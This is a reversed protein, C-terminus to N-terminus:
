GGTDCGARRGMWLHRNRAVFNYGTAAVWKTIPTFRLWSVWRLYWPALSMARLWAEAAFYTREAELVMQESYGKAQAKPSQLTHVELPQGAAKAWRQVTKSSKLCLNCTGDFYLKWLQRAESMM